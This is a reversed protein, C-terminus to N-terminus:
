NNTHHTSWAQNSTTKFPLCANPQIESNFTTMRVPVEIQQWAHLQARPYSPIPRMVKEAEFQFMTGKLINDSTSWCNDRSDSNPTNITVTSTNITVTVKLAHTVVQWRATSCLVIRGHQWKDSVIQPWTTVQWKSNTTVGVSDCKVTVRDWWVLLWNDKFYQLRKSGSLHWTMWQVKAGNMIHGSAHEENSCAPSYPCCQRPSLVASICPFLHSSISACRNGTIEIGKM